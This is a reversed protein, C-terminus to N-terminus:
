VSKVPSEVSLVIKGNQPITKYTFSYDLTNGEPFTIKVVNESTFEVSVQGITEKKRSNLVVQVQKFDSKCLEEFKKLPNYLYFYVDHITVALFIPLTQHFIVDRVFGPTDITFSDQSEGLIGSVKLSFYKNEELEPLCSVEFTGNPCLAKSPM